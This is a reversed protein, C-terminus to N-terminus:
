APETAGAPRVLEDHYAAVLAKLWDWVAKVRRVHRMDEHMSMWFTRTVKEEPLVPVLGKCPGGMYHPLLTVGLGGEVASMQANISKFRLKAHPEPVIESLFFYEPASVINTILQHKQLDDVSTLPPSRRLYGRTAYLHLTYNTLTRAVLRGVNPQNLTVAIDAERKAISLEEPLAVIELEIAPYQKLFEDLHRALFHAGFGEPVSLRVV